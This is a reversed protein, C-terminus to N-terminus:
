FRCFIKKVKNANPQGLPTLGSTRNCTLFAYLFSPINANLESKHEQILLSKLIQLQQWNNDSDIVEPKHFDVRHDSIAQLHRGVSNIILPAM